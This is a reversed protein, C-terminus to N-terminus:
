KVIPYGAKQWAKMSGLVNYIDKFGKRELISTAMSARAGNGCVTIISKNKPLTELKNELEGVYVNKAGEIHGEEYETIGRVDLVLNEERKELRAKLDNATISTIKEVPFNNSYWAIIGGVLYGKIDDYGLRILYKYAKNLESFNEVVLLIPKDYPLVWGVYSPLGKLWINYSNNIHAVGFSAPNRTDVVIAGSDVLKRFEGPLLPKYRPINRLLPPGELNYEEMKKFYPAFYHHENVKYEIFEEKDTFQLVPNQVRELGLTSHERENIAAGCVSGSGHAPCLITQDGLPLIKKFISNYLNEANRRSKDPGYMDIRGTDGVFLADGTFVLVAEDGTSTDYIAYSTSEDTHGPTHIAKVKLAGVHFEQGDQLTNGYKWDLGPGHYIEVNVSDAIELSGIVYDENRHTEFVYKINSEAKWAKELYIKADRRPDIVFAENESSVFYSIHAIGESKIRKLILKM